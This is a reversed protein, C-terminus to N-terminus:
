ANRLERAPILRVKPRRGAGAISQYLGVAFAALLGLGMLTMSWKPWGYFMVVATLMFNLFSLPILIKWGFGMLQDIRLRPYTGRFWFMVLIVASVKLFFWIVGPLVPGVWGSLFLLTIIVGLLFTNIYEALYFVAWHAGSYEVFPGGMLESEAHYIDFPTRGVEALGALLFLVFAFPQVAVFPVRGQEEVIAGLNLSGAMMAVTLALVIIPIEYSILQAIARLGGLFGYKNASGWGAMFLGAIAVVSFAIIYLLGMELDRVVWGSAFPIILWILFTPIFFMVPALWFVGKDVWSPMIDEKTLLKVADAVPQLLGWPGVRMPGIRQQLRGLAKREVYTLALVVLSLFAFLAVIGGATALAELGGYVLILVVVSTLVAAGLQLAGLLLATTPGLVMVAWLGLVALFGGMAAIAGLGLVGPFWHAM